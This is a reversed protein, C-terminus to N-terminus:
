STAGLGAGQVYGGSLVDDRVSTDMLNPSMLRASPGEPSLMRVRAGRGRLALTELGTAGAAITRLLGFASTRAIDLSAMPNLCLVETDRGAPAIDLNTTSWVGGDVYQRDGIVVPAFISPVSCSAQVAEGVEAAPAGPAGFVVRGGSARDVAVVRLRGDFRAGSASVRDRVETLSEDDGPARALLAARIASGGVAGLALTAPVLPAAAAGAWRVASLAVSGVAGERWTTAVGQEREAAPIRAGEGATLQPGGAGPAPRRPRQGAVLAAALVAGWSTGVLSETRRFDCGTADELGALVGSMWAEGLVGGGSLVLVDPVVFREPVAPSAVPPSRVGWSPRAPPSHASNDKDHTSPDAWPPASPPTPRTTRPM